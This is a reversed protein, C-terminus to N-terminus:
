LAEGRHGTGLVGRHFPFGVLEHILYDPAVYMPVGAPVLPQVQWVMRQSVLLSETRFRSKLLRETLLLGETVFINEGRLTREKRNRYAVVRPDHISHIREMSGRAKEQHGGGVRRNDGSRRTKALRVGTWCAEELDFCSNVIARHCSGDGLGW